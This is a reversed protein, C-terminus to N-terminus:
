KDNKNKVPSEKPNAVLYDNLFKDVLEQTRNQISEVALDRNCKGNKKYNWTIVDFELDSLEPKLVFRAPRVSQGSQLTLYYDYDVPKARINRPVYVLILKLFAKDITAMSEEKTLIKIGAQRLKSEVKTKLQEETLVPKNVRADLIIVRVYLAELGALCEVRELDTLRNAIKAQELRLLRTKRKLDIAIVSLCVALVILCFLTKKM